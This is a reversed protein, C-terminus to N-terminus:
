NLQHSLLYGKVEEMILVETEKVETLIIEREIQSNKTSGQLIM